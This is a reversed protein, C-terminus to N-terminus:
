RSLLGLQRARTVAETRTTSQLKRYVAAVHSKVTNRSVHLEVGIDGLSLHTPLLRLVREEAASLAMASPLTSHGGAKAVATSLVHLRERLVGETLLRALHRRADEIRTRAAVVDGLELSVEGLVLAAQTALWPFATPPVNLYHRVATGLQRRASEPQDRRLDAKAGALYTLVSTVGNESSIATMVKQAEAAHREASASDHRDAALLSLQALSLVAEVRAQERGLQAVREFQEVAEDPSGALLQAIGLVTAALANWPSGPPELDLARQADVLMRDIGLSGMMARLLCVAAEISTHGDPLPGSFATREATLLFRQARETEGSLAWVWAATVAVPPYALLAELGIAEMWSRVTAIRGVGIFDAGYRNVVQSATMRDGGAIWHAVAQEVTGHEAYWAAARCHVRQEEGPERRRLEAVLAEAFLRHYRYWERRHDLPVVFLNRREIEALRAASGTTDLVADCLAASLQDLVATRLLFRVMGAPQRALLEDRFYDAIYADDGSIEGPATPLDVRERLAIAALYVGAPWGETHQILLGVDQRGAEVGALALVDGAERADFALDAPGFEACLRDARLRGLRLAPVTRSAVALQSGPPLERALQVLLDPAQAGRLHHVDDLVLVIPAERGRIEDILHRVTPGTRTPLRESRQSGPRGLGRLALGIHDLMRSPDNDAAEVTVWAVDRLDEEAWQALTTTKGYGPPAVLIVLPQASTNSLRELLATRRVLGSRGVPARIEPGLAATVVAM